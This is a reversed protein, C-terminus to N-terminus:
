RPLGVRRILDKFRPDSRVPDWQPDFLSDTGDRSKYAKELWTFTQDDDGMYEYLSAVFWPPIYAKRSYAELHKTFVRLANEYGAAKYARGIAEAMEKYELLTAMKRWESIAEGHRGTLAYLYALQMHPGFDSPRVQSQSQYLEIARDYQRMEFFADAMHDNKPDLRQAVEFERTAEDVRGESSSLLSAYDAHANVNSPELQIARLYEKEAGNWDLECRLVGALGRHAEALSEDIQLAKLLMPKAKPVGDAPYPGNGAAESLGVYPPAYDPDQRIALRFYEEARRAEMANLTGKGKKFQAEAAKQLHSQGHLYAEHAALNVPRSVKLQALETPTMQVRIADAITSAVTSQLTLVDHLDREYSQAWINKDQPAYILQATIRIRDASRLVSGAVIGEVGLEKAIDPLPRNANKYRMVSTRSIVRLSSLRSLETILEETMGDAFYDQSPDGSLNQLPLVALSRIPPLASKGLLRDRVGAANFALLLGGVVVFIGVAIFGVNRKRRAAQPRSLEARITQPRISEWAQGNAPEVAAVFRYGRKPITEIVRSEHADDGFVRRLESVSRKLVDDSVFTDRWVTQLLEEKTVPEGARGSLCVLVEMVKPELRVSTGNQSVANLSPQVLWPGVRFDPNV